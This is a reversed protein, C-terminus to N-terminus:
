FVVNKEEFPDDKGIRINMDKGYHLQTTIADPFETRLFKATPYPVNASYVDENAQKSKTVVRYVNEGKTHFKDFSNEFDSILVIVITAAIGISLGLLNIVTFGKHKALSRVIQKLNHLLM